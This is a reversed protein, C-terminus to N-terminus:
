KWTGAIRHRTADWSDHSGVTSPPRDDEFQVSVEETVLVVGDTLNQVSESQGDDEKRARNSSHRRGDTAYCAAQNPVAMHLKLSTGQTNNHSRTQSPEQDLGSAEFEMSRAGTVATLKYPADIEASFNGSLSDFVNKMTPICATIVALNYSIQLWVTPSVTMWTFDSDEYLFETKMLLARSTFLFIVTAKKKVDSKINWVM